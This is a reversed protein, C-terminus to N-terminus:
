QQTTFDWVGLLYFYFCKKIMRRIVSVFVLFYFLIQRHYGNIGVQFVQLQLCRDKDGNALSRMSITASQWTPNTGPAEESRYVVIYTGSENIKSLVYFLKPQFVCCIARGM